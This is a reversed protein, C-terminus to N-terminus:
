QEFITVRSTVPDIVIGIPHAPPGASGGIDQPTALCLNPHPRALNTLSTSGDSFIRFERFTKGARNGQELTGASVGQNTQFLTSHTGSIVIQEPLSFVRSIRNTLPAGTGADIMELIEVEDFRDPGAAYFRVVAANQTTTAHVRAFEILAATRSASDRLLYASAIGRAAPITLVTVVGVIAVVLLIELLSFGAGEPRGGRM